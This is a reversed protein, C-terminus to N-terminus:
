DGDHIYSLFTMSLILLNLEASSLLLTIPVEHASPVTGLVLRCSKPRTNERGKRHHERLRPLSEIFTGCLAWHEM